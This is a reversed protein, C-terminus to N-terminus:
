RSIRPRREAASIRPAAFRRHPCVKELEEKPKFQEQNDIFDRQILLMDKLRELRLKKLNCQTRPNIQPLKVNTGADKVRNKGLAKSM